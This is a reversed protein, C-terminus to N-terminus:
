QVIRYKSKAESLSCANFHWWETDIMTFGAKLMADRLLKRNAMQRYTLKGQKVMRSEASPYGLEGFFDYETGMDMLWGNENVLSVDVAAGYNHLSGYAPPSVYRWKLSDPMKLSDWMMQQIGTPRVGDFIVINYFPYKEHLYKQALALKEAVDQQLYCDNLEGYLDRGTFNDKTSYKLMVAIGPVAYKVNVLGSDLLRQELGSIRIVPEQKEAIANAPFAKQPAKDFLYKKEWESQPIPTLRTLPQYLFGVILVIEVVLATLLWAGYKLEPRQFM